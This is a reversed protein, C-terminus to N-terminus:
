FSVKSTPCLLKARIFSMLLTNIEKDSAIDKVILSRHDDSRVLYSQGDPMFVLSPHNTSSQPACYAALEGVANSRMTGIAASASVSAGILFAAALYQIKMIKFIKLATLFRTALALGPMANAVWLPM